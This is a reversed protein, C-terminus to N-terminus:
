FRQPLMLDNQRMRPSIFAQWNEPLKAEVNSLRLRATFDNELTGNSRSIAQIVDSDYLTQAPIAPQSTSLEALVQDEYQGIGTESEVTGSLISPRSSFEGAPQERCSHHLLYARHAAEGIVRGIFSEM